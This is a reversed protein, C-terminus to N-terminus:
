PTPIPNCAGPIYATDTVSFDKCFNTKVTVAASPYIGDSLINVRSSVRKFINNARGTSDIEPQVGDFRVVNDGSAGILSVRFNSDTYHAKIRLYARRDASEGSVPSPLSIQASCAYGDQDLREFCRVATPVDDRPSGRLDNSASISTPAVPQGGNVPYLFFTNTNSKPDDEGYDIADFEDLTFTDAFQIFQTEMVSPRNQSWTKPLRRSSASSDLSLQGNNDTMNEKSYWELKVSSFDSQGFLPVLLSEGQKAVGLYDETDLKMTVCTYAQDLAEAASDASTNQKIIVEGTGNVGILDQLGSNCTDSTLQRKLDGCESSVSGDICQSKYRLIARKADEVGALASQRAGEALNANTSQNQDSVMLRLFSLTIVTIILMAFVVAFLSVAGKERHRMSNKVEQMNSFM